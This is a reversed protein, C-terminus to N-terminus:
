VLRTVGRSLTAAVEARLEPSGAAAVDALVRECRRRLREPLRGGDALAAAVEDALRAARRALGPDGALLAGVEDGFRYWADIAARGAPTSALTGDRVARLVAVGQVATAIVSSSLPCSGTPSPPPPPTLKAGVSGFTGLTGRIVLSQARADVTRVSLIVGAPLGGGGVTRGIAGAIRSVVRAELADQVGPLITNLMADRLADWLAQEAAPQLNAGGLLQENENAFALAVAEATPEAIEASPTPVLRGSFAFGIAGTTTGTLTVDLGGGAGAAVPDALTADIRSITTAADIALPVAPLLGPVDSQQLELRAAVVDIPSTTPVFTAFAGSRFLWGTEDHAPHAIPRLPLVRSADQVSLGAARNTFSANATFSFAESASQDTRVAFAPAAEAEEDWDHGGASSAYLKWLRAVVQTTQPGGETDLLTV